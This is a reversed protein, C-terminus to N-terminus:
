DFIDICGNGPAADDDTKSSDRKAYTAYIRSHIAAIGFPGFDSSIKKDVFGGATRVPQFNSDFVDVTGARFNTAFLFAGSGNFAIALGKYVAGSAANNVAIVAHTADVDANWGAITGNETAFLETAPASKGGASIVFGNTGNTAVGTPAGPGGGPAPVTVVLPLGSPIPNGDGDYTTAKGAGNDAVWLGSNTGLALGWPNVLNPDTIRAMGPVDSVLNTQTFTTTTTLQAAALSHSITERDSGKNVASTTRRTVAALAAIMLVLLFVLTEIKRTTRGM